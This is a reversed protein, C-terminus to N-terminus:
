SRPSYRLGAVSGREGDDPVPAPVEGSRERM